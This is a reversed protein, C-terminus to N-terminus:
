GEEGARSWGSDHQSVCLGATKSFLGCTGPAARQPLQLMSWAQWSPTDREFSRASCAPRTVPWCVEKVGDRAQEKQQSVAQAEATPAGPETM